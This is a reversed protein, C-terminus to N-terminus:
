FQPGFFAKSRGAMCQNKAGPATLRWCRTIRMPFLRFQWSISIGIEQAKLPDASVGLVATQSEAFAGALRTFEIAEKTCGPTDARPYFFLVLKKGSYDSLSVTEGGDRPLRFAPARAGETLGSGGAAPAEPRQSKLQKSSAKHSARARANAVPKKANGGSKGTTARTTKSPPSKASAKSPARAPKGSSAKPSKKRTKKSM